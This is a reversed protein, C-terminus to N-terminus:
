KGGKKSRSMMEVVLDVIVGKLQNNQVLANSIQIQLQQVKSKLDEESEAKRERPSPDEPNNERIEKKLKKATSRWAYLTNKSIGTERSLQVASEGDEIRSLLEKKRKLPISIGRVM